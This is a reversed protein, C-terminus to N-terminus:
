PAEPIRPKGPDPPEDPLSAPTTTIDPGPLIRPVMDALLANGEGTSPATQWVLSDFGQCNGCLPEWAAATQHCGSCQWQAGRPASVARGLLTQITAEPSGKAREIAAQIILSRATRDSEQLSDIMAAAMDHDGKAITLEAMAMRTEPHDPQKGTLKGFRTCRDEPTEKPVLRAFAEALEPHPNLTWARTLLREAARQNANKGQLRAALTAAPVLGPQLKLSRTVAALADQTHGAADLVRAEALAMVAEGREFDKRPLHNCRFRTRLTQRAGSWDGTRCQVSQLIKQVETHKPRLEAAKRALKLVSGTDGEELRHKLIGILGSFRTSPNILLERYIKQANDPHGLREEAQAAILGTLEPRNLHLAATSIKEAAMRPEGSALAVMSDALADFGRRERSKNIFRNLATQDGTAFHIAAWLLRLLVLAAWLVPVVLLVLVAVAVGWTTVVEVDLIEARLPGDQDIVWIAVHSFAAIALFFLVIKVLSWIM